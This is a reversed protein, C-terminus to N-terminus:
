SEPMPGPGSSWSRPMGTTCPAGAPHALIESVVIRDAHDGAHLADRGHVLQRMAEAKGPLDGAPSYSLGADECEARGNNVPEPFRIIGQIEGVELFDEARGAVFFAEDAQEVVKGSHGAAHPLVPGFADAEDVGTRGVGEIIGNDLRIVQGIRHVAGNEKGAHPERALKKEGGFQRRVVIM